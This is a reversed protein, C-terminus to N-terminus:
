FSENVDTTSSHPVHVDDYSKQKQKLDLYKKKAIHWMLLAFLFFGGIFKLWLPVFASSFIEAKLNAFNLLGKFALRFAIVIAPLLSGWIFTTLLVYSWKSKGRKTEWDYIYKEERTLMLVIFVKLLWPTAV